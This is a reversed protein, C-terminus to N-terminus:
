PTVISTLVGPLKYWIYHFREVWREVREKSNELGLLKFYGYVEKYVINFM